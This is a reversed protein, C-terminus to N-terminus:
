EYLMVCKSSSSNQEESVRERTRERQIEYMETGREPMRAHVLTNMSEHKNVIRLTFISRSNLVQRLLKYAAIFRHLTLWDVSPHTFVDLSFTDVKMQFCQRALQAIELPYLMGKDSPM